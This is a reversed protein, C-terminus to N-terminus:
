SAGPRFLTHWIMKLWPHVCISVSRAPNAVHFALQLGNFLLLPRSDAGNAVTTISSRKLPSVDAAASFPNTFLGNAAEHLVVL